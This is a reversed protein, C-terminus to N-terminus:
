SGAWASARAGLRAAAGRSCDRFRSRYRVLRRQPATASLAFGLREMLDHCIEEVDAIQLKSLERRWGAVEGKGYFGTPDASTPFPSKAPAGERIRDIAAGDVIREVAYPDAEIDLWRFTRSLQKAPDGRFDAYSTRLMLGPHAAEFDLAASVSRRWLLANTRSDPSAWPGAWQKGARIISSTVARPDRVMHIFRADPFMELIRDLHLAHGPTKELFVATTAVKRLVARAFDAELSRFDEAPLVAPLGIGRSSAAHKAWVSDLAAIYTMLHTEQSSSIAPHASLMLQLWTTGSRPCGVLFVPAPDSAAARDTM